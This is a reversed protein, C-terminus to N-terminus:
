AAGSLQIVAHTPAFLTGSLSLSGAGSSAGYSQFGCVASTRTSGAAWLIGGLLHDAFPQTSYQPLTHGIATYWSRGAGSDQCWTVPHVAGRSAGTYTPEDCRMLV